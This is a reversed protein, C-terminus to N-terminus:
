HIERSICINLYVFILINQKRFDQPFKTFSIVFEELRKGECFSICLDPHAGYGAAALKGLQQRNELRTRASYRERLQYVAKGLGLGQINDSVKTKLSCTVKCFM